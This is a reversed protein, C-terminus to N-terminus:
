NLPVVFDHYGAQHQDPWWPCRALISKGDPNLLMFAQATNCKADDFRLKQLNRSLFPAHRPRYYILFDSGSSGATGADWHTRDVFLTDSLRHTEVSNDGVLTIPFYVLAALVPLLLIAMATTALWKPKFLSILLVLLAYGGVALWQLIQNFVLSGPHWGSQIELVYIAILLGSLICLALQASKPLRPWRIRAWIAALVVAILFLLAALASM